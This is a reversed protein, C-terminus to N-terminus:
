VELPIDPVLGEGHMLEKAEELSLDTPPIVCDSAGLFEDPLLEGGDRVAASLQELSSRLAAEDGAEVASATALDLENLRAVLSDDVKWQGEGM